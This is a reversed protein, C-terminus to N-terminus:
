ATLCGEVGGGSPSAAGSAPAGVAGAEQAANYADCWEQDIARPSLGAKIAFQERELMGVLAVEIVTGDPLTITGGSDPLKAVLDLADPHEEALYNGLALVTAVARRTDKPRPIVPMPAADENHWTTITYPM